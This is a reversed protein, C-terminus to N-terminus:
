ANAPIVRLVAPTALAGFGAKVLTRRDIGSRRDNDAVKRGSDNM